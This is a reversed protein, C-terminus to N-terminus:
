VLRKNKQDNGVNVSGTVMMKFFQLFSDAFKFHFEGEYPDRHFEYAISMLLYVLQEYLWQVAM